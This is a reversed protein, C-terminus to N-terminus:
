LRGPCGRPGFEQGARNFWILERPEGGRIYALVGTESVSFSGKLGHVLVTLQDAVPFPKGQSSFANPMSRSPWLTWNRVFLLYGPPTYARQSLDSLLRKTEKSDLSGVYIGRIEPEPVSPRLCFTAGMLCSIRHGGHKKSSRNRQAQRWLRRAGADDSGRRSLCSLAWLYPSFLIM